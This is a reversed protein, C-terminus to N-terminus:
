RRRQPRRLIRNRTDSRNAVRDQPPRRRSQAAGRRRRWSQIRCVSPARGVHGREQPETEPERAGPREGQLKQPQPGCPENEAGCRLGGGRNDGTVECSKAKPSEESPLRRSRRDSSVPPELKRDCGSRDSRIADESQERGIRGLVGKGTTAQARAHGDNSERDKRDGETKSRRKRGETVRKGGRLVDAAPATREVRQVRDAPGTADSRHAKAKRRGDSHPRAVERGSQGVCEGSEDREPDAVGRLRSWWRRRYPFGARWAAHPQDRGASPEDSDPELDEPRHEERLHEVVRDVGEGRHAQHKEERNGGARPERRQEKVGNCRCADGGRAQDDRTDCGDHTHPAEDVPRAAEAVESHLGTKELVDRSDDGEGGHGGPRSGSGRARDQRREPRGITVALAHCARDALQRGRVESPSDDPRQGCREDDQGRDTKARSEQHRGDGVHDERVGDPSRASIGPRSTYAPRRTM